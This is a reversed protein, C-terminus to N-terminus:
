KIIVGIIKSLFIEIQLSVFLYEDIARVSTSKHTSCRKKTSCRYM